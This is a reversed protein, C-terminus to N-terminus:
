TTARSGLSEHHFGTDVEWRWVLSASPAAPARLCLLSISSFRLRLIVLSAAQESAPPKCRQLREVVSLQRAQAIRAPAQGRGPQKDIVVRANDVRRARRAPCGGVALRAGDGKSIVRQRNLWRSRM